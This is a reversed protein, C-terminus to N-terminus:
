KMWGDEQELWKGQVINLLPCVPQPVGEKIPCGDM